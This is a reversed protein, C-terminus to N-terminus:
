RLNQLDEVTQDELRSIKWNDISRFSLDQVLILYYTMMFSCVLILSQHYRCIRWRMKSTVASSKSRNMEDHDTSLRVETETISPPIGRSIMVDIVATHRCEKALDMATLGHINKTNLDATRGISLLAEVAAVNDACAAYHLATRSRHDVAHVDLGANVLIPIAQSSRGSETAFHLATRGNYDADLLSSGGEQLIRSMIGINGRRSALHLITQGENDPNDLHSANSLCRDLDACSSSKSWSVYHAITMGRFDKAVIDADAYHNEIVSRVTANFFTHLPTRGTSDQHALDAGHQLLTSIVNNGCGERVAMQLPTEGFDNEADVAFGKRWSANEFMAKGQDSWTRILAPGIRVDISCLQLNLIIWSRIRLGIPESLQGLHAILSKSIPVGGNISVNSSSVATTPQPDSHVRIDNVPGRMFPSLQQQPCPIPRSTATQISIQLLKIQLKMQTTQVEMSFIRVWDDLSNYFKRLRRDSSLWTLREWVRQTRSSKMLTSNKQIRNELDKVELLFDRFNTEFIPELQWDPSIDKHSYIALLATISQHVCRLKTAQSHIEEPIERINLMFNYVFDCTSGAAALLTLISAASSIPEM